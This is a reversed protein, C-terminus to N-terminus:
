NQVPRTGIGAAYAGVELVKVINNTRTDIIVVTGPMANDGFDHRPTYGGRLNNGTVYLYRGDRTLTSGHPESIGEGEIVASVSMKEIDVVTVTHAMKNGLYARKSDASMAPHWPAANVDITSKLPLEPPNSADFFFLKGTLQGGVILTSRDPTIGFQVLTHVPGDITHVTGDGTAIDVALMRNEGLSGSYVYEGAPDMMLAHPRPHFVGVEDIEMSSRTIMGVSQPPNVAAMSRGVFMLDSTPDIVLLGPVQFEASGVLENERSFKLVRNEAIMSVYWFSGDKEVAIHHPKSTASYGLEQLDVIRVVTQSEADIVYVKAEGQNAVYVLDEAEDGALQGDPGAAGGNIWGKIQDVEGASLTAAGTESPHPGAVLKEAMEVLVSNDASYPIVAEGHSSGAMVDEWSDLKLGAEAQGAGHCSTCKASFIPQITSSYMGLDTGTKRSQACASLSFLGVMLVTLGIRSTM